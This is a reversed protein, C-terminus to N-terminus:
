LRVNPNREDAAEDVRTLFFALEECLAASTADPHNQNIESALQKARELRECYNQMMVNLEGSVEAFQDRPRLKLVQYLNGEAIGKITREIAYVPGAIHFSIDRSIFYVIIIAVVEMGAVTLSFVSFLSGESGLRQELMSAALIIFNLTILTILVTSLILKYQFENKIIVQKRQQTM